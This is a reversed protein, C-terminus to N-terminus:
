VWTVCTAITALFSVTTGMRLLPRMAMTTRELLRGKRAPGESEERSEALERLRSNVGELFLISIEVTSSM